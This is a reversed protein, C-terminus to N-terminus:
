PNEAAGPGSATITFPFGLDRCACGLNPLYALSAQPLFAYRGPARAAATWRRTALVMQGHRLDAFGPHFGLAPGLIKAAAEPGEGAFTAYFLWVWASAYEPDSPALETSRRAAAAVKEVDGLGRYM